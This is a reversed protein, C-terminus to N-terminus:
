FRFRCFFTYLEYSGGRCAGTLVDRAIRELLSENPRLVAADRPHQIHEPPLPARREINVPVEHPVDRIRHRTQYQDRTLVRRRDERAFRRENYSVRRQKGYDASITTEICDRECDGRWTCQQCEEDNVDYHQEVGFCVPRTM